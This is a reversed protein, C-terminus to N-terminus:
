DLEKEDPLHAAAMLAAAAVQILEKHLDGPKAVGEMSRKLHFAFDRLQKTIVQGWDFPGHTLNEEGHKVSALDIEVAVEEMVEAVADGLRANDMYFTRSM